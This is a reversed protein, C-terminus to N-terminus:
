VGQRSGRRVAAACGLLVLGALAGVGSQLGTTPLTGDLAAPEGAARRGAPAPAATTLATSRPAAGLPSADSGQALTIWDGKPARQGVGPKSYDCVGTPFAAEMRKWQADTFGVGSVQHEPRSLPKLTCKLVDATKPMGAVLRALQMKTYAADCADEQALREAGVYCGDRAEAPKNRVVKVAHSATSKDAEIAALWQDMVVFTKDALLPSPMGFAGKVTPEFWYAQAATGNAFRSQRARVIERHINGHFDLANDTRADITPTLALNKGSSFQGNEYFRRIGTLDGHTRDAQPQYDITWGGVKENLDVFQETTISGAKWAALGWEVGVDDLLGNAFGDPRRGVAAVNYDQLTCRAGRRNTVPDYMEDADLKCGTTPDWDEPASGVGAAGELCYSDTQNGIVAGRQAAVPWLQPSTENFYRELLACDSKTFIAPTWADAFTCTPRIGDLLGPYNEAISNQGESGGSCGDGITYRIEGYRETILEKVMATTEASVNLNCANGMVNLTSSAVAFGRKLFGDLLVDVSSAQSHGPACAQGYTYVLKRNWGPQPAWPELPKAPDFLVAVDYVARNLTGRELRVVYPVTNGQDTTTTAVLAAPPPSAPDYDAFQGTVANRYSFTYRTPANCQADRARGLGNAETTCVWPQVQKGSLLPGGRPHNVVALKAGRGDATRATVTSPGVPLGTVRGLVRGRVSGAARRAFSSSVDRGGVRVRLGEASTGPPLVVEVLADGATVLDARTGLVRVQVAAPSSLALGPAALTTAGVGLVAALALLTRARRPRRAQPAQHPHQDTSVRGAEPRELHPHDTIRSASAADVAGVSLGHRSPRASALGPPAARQARSRRRECRQCADDEVPHQQVHRVAGAGGDRQREQGRLDCGEGLGHGVADDGRGHCRDGPRQVPDG